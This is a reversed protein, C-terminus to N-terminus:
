TVNVTEAGGSVTVEGRLIQDTIAVALLDFYNDVLAKLTPDPSTSLATKLDTALDNPDLAM